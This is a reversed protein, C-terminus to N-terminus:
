PRGSSMTVSRPGLNVDRTQLAKTSFSPGRGAECEPVPRLGVPLHLPGVLLQPPEKPTVALLPLNGESPPTRGSSGEDSRWRASERGTRGPIDALGPRTSGSGSWLGQSPRTTGANLPLKSRQGRSAGAGQKSGSPAPPDGGCHPERTGDQHNRRARGLVEQEVQGAPLQAGLNTPGKLTRWLALLTVHRNCSGV